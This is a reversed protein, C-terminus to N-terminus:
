ASYMSMWKVTVIHRETDPHLRDAEKMHLQWNLRIKKM